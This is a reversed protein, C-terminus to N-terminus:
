VFPEGSVCNMKVIILRKAKRSSNAIGIGVRLKNTLTSDIPGRTSHNYGVTVELATHQNLFISPGAMFSVTNYSYTHIDSPTISRYKSWAFGYAADAFVNVKQEAPLFYYRFFPALSITSYTYKSETWKYTESGFDVRLGGALKNIFFYGSAPSFQLTSMKLERSQAFSFEANGGLLWQGKQIQSFADLSSWTLLILASIILICKKFDINKIMICNEPQCSNKHFRQM